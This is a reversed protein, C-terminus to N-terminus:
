LPSVIFTKYHIIESILLIIIIKKNSLIYKLDLVNSLKLFKVPLFDASILVVGESRYEEWTDVCDDTISLTFSTSLTAESISMHKSSSMSAEKTSCYIAPDIYQLFIANKTQLTYLINDINKSM